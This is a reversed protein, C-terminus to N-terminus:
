ASSQPRLDLAAILAQLRESRAAARRDIRGRRPVPLLRGVHYPHSDQALATPTAVEFALLEVGHARAGDQLEELHRAPTVNADALAAIRRVGPEAEILIDQRKGDLEPSLLSIGTINGGPRTLSAAFGEAVMDENM